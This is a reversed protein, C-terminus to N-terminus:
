VEEGGRAVALLGKGPHPPSAPRLSGTRGTLNRVRNGARGVTSFPTYSGGNEQGQREANMKNTAMDSETKKIAGKSTFLSAQFSTNVKIDNTLQGPTIFLNHYNM